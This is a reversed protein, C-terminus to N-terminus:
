KMKVAIDVDSLPCTSDGIKYIFRFGSFNSSKCLTVYYNNDPSPSFDRNKIYDKTYYPECNRIPFELLWFGNTKGKENLPGDVQESKFKAVLDTKLCDL